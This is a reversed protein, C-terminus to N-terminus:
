DELHIVELDLIMGAEKLAPLWHGFTMSNHQSGVNLVPQAKYIDGNVTMNVRFRCAGGRAEEDNPEYSDGIKGEVVGVKSFENDINIVTMPGGVNDIDAYATVGWGKAHYNRIKHKTRAMTLPIVGHQIYIIGEDPHWRTNGQLVPQDNSVAHLILSSIMNGMDGECACMIGEDILRDYALCPIIHRRDQIWMRNCNVCIGNADEKLALARLALYVRTVDLLDKESKVVSCKHSEPTESVEDFSKRWSALEKRVEAEKFSDFLRYFEIMEIQRARVGFRDECSFLHRPGADHRISFSPYEGVYLVKSESLVKKVRLGRLFDSNTERRIVPLGLRSLSYDELPSMPGGALLADTDYSLEAKLKRFDANERVILPPEVKVFGVDLSNKFRDVMERTRTELEQMSAPKNPYSWPFNRPVGVYVPKVKVIGRPLLGKKETFGSIGSAGLNLVAAVSKVPLLFSGLAVGSISGLVKRRSFINM